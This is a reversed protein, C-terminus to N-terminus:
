VYGKTLSAYYTTGDYFVGLVDVSNATTSLTKIGGAFKMSSTLLRNGVTDQTLIFTASTGAVANTLANLTINGTLTYNFMTGVSVDPTITGSITANSILNENFKQLALNSINATGSVSLSVLTGVSNAQAAYAVEGIVNAGDISIAENAYAVNGVINGANVSFAEGAFNAYNAYAVTGNAIDLNTLLSGDGVIFNGTIYDGSINGSVTLSTLTGVSTINPQANGVVNDANTATAADPVAGIVNAGDVSYAYLANGVNGTVNAGAVSNAVAAFAVPGNVNGGDVLYAINAVNATNAFNATDAAVNTLLSGNGSVFNALVYDATVNGTVSIGTTNAVLINSVGGVAVFVPGDAVPISVNSTGNSIDSVNGGAPTAWSLNGTGDTTLVQAASGGTIKVNAVDGLQSTGTAVINSIYLNSWVNGVAGLDYADNSSPILDGQVRGSIVLSTLTGLSTINPQAANSVTNAVNAINATNATNATVANVGTLQSGNGIFFNASINNAGSINGGSGGGTILNGIDANGVVTLTSLNGVATINSQTANAVFEAVNAFTALAVPGSVNAGSVSLALNAVAVNGVVNAADVSLAVNATNALTALSAVGQLNGVFNQAKLNGYENVTVVNNSVTVNSAMVFIANANEYGMFASQPSTTYYQLQLGRDKGDNSTLPDGNPGGGLQIIPDEVVLEEVNVYKINGDVTLNGGILVNGAVSLTNLLGVSTINPQDANSVTNAIAVEGNVNAGDVAFANGAFNAYNATAVNSINGTINGVFNAATINGTTSIDSNATVPGLIQTGAPVGNQNLSSGDIIVGFQGGTVTQPNNTGDSNPASM